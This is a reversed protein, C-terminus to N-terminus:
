EFKKWHDLWEKMQKQRRFQETRRYKNKFAYLLNTHDANHYRLLCNIKWWIVDNTDTQMGESYFILNYCAIHKEFKSCHVNDENSTPLVGFPCLMNYESSQRDIPNVENKNEWFNLHLKKSIWFHTM